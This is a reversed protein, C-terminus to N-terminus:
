QEPFKQGNEVSVGSLLLLERAIAKAAEPRSFKKAAVSMAQLKPEDGLLKEIERLLLNPKLNEEELVQAGGAAAYEYANERQHDQTASALPVILAPKGM